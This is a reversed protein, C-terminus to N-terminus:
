RNYFNMAYNLGKTVIVKIAEVAIELTPEIKQWERETFSRLVYEAPEQKGRPRGIGIRVRPFDLSQLKEIISNVGKHGGSGGRPRIRLQALPLDIDDYVVVLQKTPLNFANLLSAIAKGSENMYTLPKAIVIEQNDLLSYSWVAHYKVQNLEIDLTKLLRDIVLYGVNHRARLYEEGPNGLGVVLYLKSSTQLM